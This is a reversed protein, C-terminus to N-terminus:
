LSLLWQVGTEVIAENKRKTIFECHTMNNINCRLDQSTADHIEKSHYNVVYIKRCSSVRYTVYLFAATSVVSTLIIWDM